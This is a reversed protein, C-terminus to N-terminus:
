NILIQLGHNYMVETDLQYSYLITQEINRVFVLQCHIQQRFQFNSLFLIKDLQLM